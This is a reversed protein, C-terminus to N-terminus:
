PISTYHKITSTAIVFLSMVIFYVDSQITCFILNNTFKFKDLYFTISIYDTFRDIDVQFHPCRCLGCM